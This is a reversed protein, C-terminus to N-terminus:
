KISHDIMNSIRMHCVYLVNANPTRILLKLANITKKRNSRIHACHECEYVYLDYILPLIITELPTYLLILIIIIIKTIM